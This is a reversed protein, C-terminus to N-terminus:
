EWEDRIKNQYDLGDTKSKMTGYLKKIKKGNMLSNKNKEVLYDAYHALEEVLDQSLNKIDDLIHEQLSEIKGM